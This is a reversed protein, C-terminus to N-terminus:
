TGSPEPPPPLLSDGDLGYHGVRDREVLDATALVLAVQGVGLDLDDVTSVSTELAEDIQILSVFPYESDSPQAAIAAGDPSYARLVPLLADEMEMAPGGQGGAVTVLVSAPGGVRALDEPPRAATVFGEDLLLRLVDRREAIEEGGQALRRGLASAAAATLSAPSSQPSMELIDALTRADDES